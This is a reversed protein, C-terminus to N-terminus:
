VLRSLVADATMLSAESIRLGDGQWELEGSELFEQVAARRVPDGQLLEEVDGRHIGDRLRLGLMFREGRAISAEPKEVDVIRSAGESALWDDLRPLNRYRVGRLNGAGAPGLAVWEGLNWYVLNHVSREGPLAWNSIEYHEFGEDGLRQRALEFMEAELEDDIPEIRGRRRREDLATGPEFVLGYCSLHDPELSLATELDRRWDELTSGPIGFILDLSVRRIGARRVEQIARPVSEPDHHRELTELHRPDFSQCGISVRDVGSSVLARAIGEDVTEPNAEVTFEELTSGKSLTRIAGLVRELQHPQLITPTGGGVFVTRIANSDIREGVTRAEQEFRIAFDGSRDRRDVVSYFDCYHCKHRCFPVHAYIAEPRAGELLGGADIGNRAADGLVPLTIRDLDM